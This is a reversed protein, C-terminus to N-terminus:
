IAAEAFIQRTDRAWAGDWRALWHEAQTPGGAAIERLPELYIREDEGDANVLGRAALGDEAIAVLPSVLDRLIGQRWAADLGRVPVETRVAM